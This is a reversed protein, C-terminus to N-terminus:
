GVVVYIAGLIAFFIPQHLVYVALSHRGLFTIKTSLKLSAGPDLGKEFLHGLGIGLLVVGTWPFLAVYDNPSPPLGLEWFNFPWKSTVVGTLFLVVTFVGVTAAIAPYRVLPLCLISAVAVFHLVGFYIWNNHFFTYTFLSIILAWIVIWVIRKAFSKFDVRQRHAFVLSAGVSLFFLTLIVYRFEKWGKGNPVNWDVWGFFRLDYAFHFIVMLVIAITRIIDITVNRTGAM